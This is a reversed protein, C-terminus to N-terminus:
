FGGDRGVFAQGCTAGTSPGQDCATGDTTAEHTTAREVEQTVADAGFIDFGRAATGYSRQSDGGYPRAAMRGAAPEVGEGGGCVCVCVCGGMGWVSNDRAGRALMRVVLLSVAGHLGRQARCQSPTHPM